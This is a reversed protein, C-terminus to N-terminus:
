RQIEVQIETGDKSSEIRFTGGLEESRKKMTRMGNGNLITNGDFGSGNDALSFFLGEEKVRLVFLVKTAESYKAANNIAEKVILLINKRDAQNM